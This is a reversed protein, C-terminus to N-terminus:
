LNRTAEKNLNSTLKYYFLCICIVNFAMFFSVSWNIAIYIILGNSVGHGYTAIIDLTSWWGMGRYVM